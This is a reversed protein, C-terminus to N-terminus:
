LPTQFENYCIKLNMDKMYIPQRLVEKDDAIAFFTKYLFYILLDEISYNSEKCIFNQNDFTTVNDTISLFM